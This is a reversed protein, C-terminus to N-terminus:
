KKTILKFLMAKLLIKFLSYFVFQKLIKIRICSYETYEYESYFYTLKIKEVSIIWGFMWVHFSM